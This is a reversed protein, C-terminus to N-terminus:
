RPSSSSARSRASCCCTRPSTPPPWCAVGPRSLATALRELLDMRDNMATPRGSASLAGRAPHDCAVIMLRGDPGFLERRRRTLLLQRIRQPERARVENIGAVAGVFTAQETEIVSTM